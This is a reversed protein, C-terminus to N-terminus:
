VNNQYNLLGLVEVNANDYNILGDNGNVIPLRLSDESFDKKLSEFLKEDLGSGHFYLQRDTPVEFPLKKLHNEIYGFRDKSLEIIKDANFENESLDNHVEFFTLYFKGRLFMDVQLQHKEIKFVIQVAKNNISNKSKLYREISFTDLVLEKLSAGSSEAFNYLKQIVYKPICIVAIEKYETYDYELQTKIVKYNEVPESLYSKLEWQVQEFLIENSADVPVAVKKIHAYNGPLSISLEAEDINSEDKERKIFDALQELNEKDMLGHLKFNFPYSIAKVSKLDKQEQHAFHMAKNSFSVAFLHTM